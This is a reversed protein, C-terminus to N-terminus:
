GAPIKARLEWLFDVLANDLGNESHPTLVTIGWRALLAEQVPDQSPMFVFSPPRDDKHGSREWTQWIRHLLLRINPDSMSYGIFLITRGLADSRFKIDLPSDFSLRDLFDTETIVLSSDDAFDGHYKIIQTVGDKASAIDKANSIKAYPRAHVEFATELNRDYNTTYIAPFNLEVILKHLESMAVKDESVKWNRDLWSRLSGIGGQKLRYLEALMQYGDRMGDIVKPDLDLEHLLHDILAKWSPLGVSMSVGAGVFLIARRHEIAAALVDRPSPSQM